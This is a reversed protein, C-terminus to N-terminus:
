NLKNQLVLPTLKVQSVEPKDRQFDSAFSLYNGWILLLGGLWNRKM